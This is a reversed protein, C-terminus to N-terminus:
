LSINNQKVWNVLAQKPLAGTYDGIVKGEKFLMLTPMAQVDYEAALESMADVDVKYVEIKGAYEKSFETLIPALARCPGCWTAFFDVLVPLKNQKVKQTFDAVSKIEEM